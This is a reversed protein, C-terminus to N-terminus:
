YGANLDVVHQLPEQNLFRELNEMCIEWITDQVQQNGGFSPGAIHPTIMVNEMDWLPSDEPLPETEFVDLIAGGLAGAQLADTLDMSRVLNGRGVNVFSADPKMLALRERSMLGTTDPTRPLCGIVLDAEPLYADLHDSTDLRDFMPFERSRNTVSVSHSCSVGAADCVSSEHRRIGITSVGFAKLRSAINRGIDGTGLILANKGALTVAHDCKKWVHRKQNEYYKSFSRHMAIVSGIVYEAIITGFAGSVNTLTIGSLVDKMRVYKDAGAWTIQIWRLSPMSLINDKEPEGIVADIQRLIEESVPREDPFILECKGDFRESLQKRVESDCEALIMVKKM